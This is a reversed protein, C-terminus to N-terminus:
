MTLIEILDTIPLLGVFSFTPWRLLIIAVVSSVIMAVLVGLLLWMFGATTFSGAIFSM